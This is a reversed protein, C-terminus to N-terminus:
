PLVEIHSIAIAGAHGDVLVVEIEGALLWPLSRTRTELSRGPRTFPYARVRTGVPLWERPSM